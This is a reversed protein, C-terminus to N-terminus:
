KAGDNRACLSAIWRPFASFASRNTQQPVERLLAGKTSFIRQPSFASVAIRRVKSIFESFSLSTQGKKRYIRVLSVIGIMIWATNAVFAPLNWASMLSALIGATGM